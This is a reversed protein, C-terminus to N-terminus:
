LQPYKIVKIVGKQFKNPNQSPTEMLTFRHNFIEAKSTRGSPAEQWEYKVVAGDHFEYVREIRHTEYITPTESVIKAREDNIIIEAYEEANKM